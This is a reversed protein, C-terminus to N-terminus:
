KIFVLKKTEKFGGAQIQYLYIGSAVRKGADDRGNWHLNYVGPEKESHELTKVLMGLLNYIRVKVFTKVPLSYQITTEGNFPNPYNQYLKFEKLLGTGTLERVATPLESASTYISLAATQTGIKSPNFSVSFYQYGTSILTIPYDMEPITFDSNDITVSDITVTGDSTNKILIQSSEKSQGFIVEGFDYSDPFIREGLILRLPNVVGIGYLYIQRNFAESNFFFTMAASKNGTTVPNFIIPINLSTYPSITFPFDSLSHSFESPDIAISDLCLPLDAINSISLDNRTVPQELMRSGFDYSNHSLSAHRSGTGTLNIEKSFTVPGFYLTMIANKIEESTPTFYVPINLESNAAITIPFETIGHSFEPQNINVTDLTFPASFSNTILFDNWTKTHGIITEEFNHSTFSFSADVTGIGALYINITPRELITTNLTLVCRRMGPASPQFQIPLSFTIDPPISIPFTISSLSFEPNDFIPNDIIITDSYINEFIMLSKETTNGVITSVLFDNMNYSFKLSDCSLIYVGTQPDTSKIGYIKSGHVYYKSLDINYSGVIIPNEPNSIDIVKLVGGGTAYIYNGKLTLGNFTGELSVKEVPIMRDSFEVVSLGKSGMPIFGYYGAPAIDNHVDLLYGIVKPNSKDSVDIITYKEGTKIFLIADNGYITSPPSLELSGVFLINNPQTLDYIVIGDLGLYKDSFYSYYKHTSIYAYDATILYGFVDYINNEKLLLPNYPNSIDYQALSYRDYYHSPPGSTPFKYYLLYLTNNKFEFFKLATAEYGDYPFLIESAKAPNGLDSIEYILFGSPPYEYYSNGFIVANSSLAKVRNFPEGFLNAPIYNVLSINNGTQSSDIIFDSFVPSYLAQQELIKSEEIIIQDAINQASANNFFTLILLFIQIAFSLLGKAINNLGVDQM